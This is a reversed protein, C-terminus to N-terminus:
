RTDVEATMGSRTGHRQEASARQLARWKRMLVRNWWMLCGTIALAAPSLGLVVWAAKSWAGWFDGFHVSYSVLAIKEGLSWKRSSEIALVDGTAPDLRVIDELMTLPRRPDRSLFVSVQGGPRYVDMYLYALRTDPFINQATDLYEGVGRLPRNPKWTSQRQNADAPFLGFVAQVKEPFAFYFGSFGWMAILVMTWFGFASHLDFILRKWRARWNVKIARTWNKRGPWWVVIGTLSLLFLSGGGVGNFAEGKPGGLLENHLPELFTLIPHQREAITEALIRGTYADLYVNRHGDNGSRLTVTVIRRDGTRMDIADLGEGPHAGSAIEVLAPYGLRPTMSLHPPPAPADNMIDREFVLVSGSVSIAVMYLALTVGTWLHVQFIAKRWPVVQPRAVFGM